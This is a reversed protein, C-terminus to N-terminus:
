ATGDKSLNSGAGEPTMQSPHPAPESRPSTPRSDAIDSFLFKIADIIFGRLQGRTMEIRWFEDDHSQVNVSFRGDATSGAYFLKARVEQM